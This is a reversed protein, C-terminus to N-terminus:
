GNASIFRSIPKSSTHRKLLAWASIQPPSRKRLKRGGIENNCLSAAGNEASGVRVIPLACSRSSGNANNSGPTWVPSIRGAGALAPSQKARANRAGSARGRDCPRQTSCRRKSCRNRGKKRLTCNRPCPALILANPAKKQLMRVGSVAPEPRKGKTRNPHALWHKESAQTPELCFFGKRRLGITTMGPFLLCGAARAPTASRRDFGATTTAGSPRLLNESMFYARADRILSGNYCSNLIQLAIKTNELIMGDALTAM